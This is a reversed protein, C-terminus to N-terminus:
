KPPNPRLMAFVAPFGLIAAGVAGFYWMVAVSYFDLMSESLECDDGQQFDWVHSAGLLFVGVVPFAIVEPGDPSRDQAERLYDGQESRARWPSFPGKRNPIVYKVECSSYIICRSGFSAALSSPRSSRLLM